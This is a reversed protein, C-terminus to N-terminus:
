PSRRVYPVSLVSVSHPPLDLTLRTGKVPVEETDIRVRDPHAIDNFSDASEAGLWRLTASSAAEAGLDIACSVGEHAHLSSLAISLVSAERDLTAVADLYPVSVVPKVGDWAKIARAVRAAEEDVVEFHPTQVHADLVQSGTHNAYLDFVHYMSRLVIGDRHTFIAGRTNVVPSFNAMGLTQCHRLCANLFRATFLADAMTYTSNEDNKDREAINPDVEQFSPHHWGRLNWEDFSIRIRGLLGMAGLIHEVRAIMQEPYRSRAVCVEYPAEDNRVWYGHISIWDLLHGAAELLKTNWELDLTSAALLQITGDVRKMMKASETVFRGWEDATKAGLEWSGYNENGVSWYTVKHPEPYGNAQRRKAWPGEDRLNCYEVWDSMEEPTGSGANTCIYPEAGVARCYAVFEDTGFANPEEVRWAKDFKPIRKGVGDEWHYASVFCGGPWRIIPPRIRRLADMVDTRFGRADSLPSTPDYIGGYIQRHFHELFHGFIMPDREGIVRDHDIKVYAKEPM